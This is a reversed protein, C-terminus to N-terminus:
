TPSCSPRWSAARPLTSTSRCRCARPRTTPWSPMTSPRSPSTSAPTRRAWSPSSASPTRTSASSSTKPRSRTAARRWRSTARSSTGTAASSRGCWRCTRAWSWTRGPPTRARAERQQRWRWKMALGALMVAESSGTTSVGVADGDAPANFLDAVINVCRREIEATAPYEDKDIMNKDFATKMLAEAQPEMWTTVFTALNLRANGDLMLEDYVLREAVDPWAGHEPLRYKPMLGLDARHTYAPAVIEDALQEASVRKIVM